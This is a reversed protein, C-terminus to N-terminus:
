PRDGVSSLLQASLSPGDRADAPPEWLIKHLSVGIRGVVNEIIKHKQRNSRHMWYRHDVEFAFNLM